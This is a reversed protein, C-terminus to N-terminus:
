CYETHALVCPSISCYQTTFCPVPVVPGFRQFEQGILLLRQNALTVKDFSFFMVSRAVRYRNMSLDINEINPCEWFTNPTVTEIYNAQLYLYQLKGLGRLMGETLNRLKNYGM